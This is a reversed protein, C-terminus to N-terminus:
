LLCYCSEGIDYWAMEMFYFGSAVRIMSGLRM